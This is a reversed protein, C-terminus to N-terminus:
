VFALLEKPTHILRQAGAARLQAESRFGWTCFVGFHGANQATKVDVESDGVYLTEERTFGLEDLVSSVSKEDPKRPIGSREGFAHAIQGDFFTKCIAKTAADPKNSLCALVFGRSKLADLLASIGDYPKVYDMWHEPYYRMYEAVCADLYEESVPAPLTTKLLIRVGNGVAERVEDRTKEPHSFVQMVHNVCSTLNDVTDTLTGDLDFLILKTSM